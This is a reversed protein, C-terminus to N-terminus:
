LQTNHYVRLSSVCDPKSKFKKMSLLVFVNWIMTIETKAAKIIMPTKTNEVKFPPVLLVRGLMTMQPVDGADSKEEAYYRGKSKTTLQAFPSLLQAELSELEERILM